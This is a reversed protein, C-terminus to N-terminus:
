KTSSAFHITLDDKLESFTGVKVTNKKLLIIKDFKSLINFRDCTMVLTKGYVSILKEVLISKDKTNVGNLCDDVILMSTNRLIGRIFSVRQRQGGSLERGCSESHKNYGNELNRFIQDVNFFRCIEIIRKEDLDNGYKLNEMVTGITYAEYQSVFTILSHINKKEINSLDIGNIKISGEYQLLGSLIRLLLTKGSGNLGVIAVKENQNIVFSVDKLINEYSLSQCEIMNIDEIQTKTSESQHNTDDYEVTCFIYFFSNCESLSKLFEKLTGYLEVTLLMSGDLNNLTIKGQYYFIYILFLSWIEIMKYFITIKTKSFSYNLRDLGRKKFAVDIRSASTDEMNYTKVINFNSTESESLSRAKTKSDFYRHQLLNVTKVFFIFIIIHLLIGTILTMEFHKSTKASLHKTLLVIKIVKALIEITIKNLLTSVAESKEYHKNILDGITYRHFKNWNLGLYDALTTNLATFFVKLTSIDYISVIVLKSLFLYVSIMFYRSITCSSNGCLISIFTDINKVELYEIYSYVPLILFLACSSIFNKKTFWDAIIKKVCRLYFKKTFSRSFRIEETPSAHRPAEVYESNDVQSHNIQVQSSM